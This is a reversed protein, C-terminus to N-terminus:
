YGRCDDSDCTPQNCEAASSWLEQDVQYGVIRMTNVTVQERNRQPTTGDPDTNHHIFRGAVDQCFEAYAETNLIFAHWGPDVARSPSLPTNPCAAITGLYALAQDMVREAHEQTMETEYRRMFAVLKDFLEPSILSRGTKKETLTSTM